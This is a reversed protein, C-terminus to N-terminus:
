LLLGWEMRIEEGFCHNAETGLGEQLLQRTWELGDRVALSWEM